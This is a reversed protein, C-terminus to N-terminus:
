SALQQMLGASDVQVEVKRIKGDAGFTLLSFYGIALKKGNAPIGQFAVGTHTAVFSGKALVRDSGIPLLEENRHQGDPFSAYFMADVGVFGDRDLVQSGMCFSLEPAALELVKATQRADVRRYWERTTGVHDAAPGTLQQMLGASDFQGVHEVIRGDVVRYLMLLDTSVTRGTPAVGMLEGRHTGTFTAVVTVRDGAEVTRHVVHKGDPIAAYFATGFGRWGDRDVHQGGVQIKAGPAIMEMAAPWDQRDLTELFRTVFSSASHTM